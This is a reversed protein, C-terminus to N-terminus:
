QYYTYTSNTAFRHGADTGSTFLGDGTKTLPVNKDNYNYTYTITFDLTSGTRVVKGPNNKQLQVGPLLVLHDFFDNHILTFGDVNIKTDYQEYRDTVTGENQGNIAAVHQVVEQLNGDALYKFTMTKDVVFGLASRLERELKTLQQGTYSFSVRKRVIGGEDTYNVRIVRGQDDYSYQLRDFNGLSNNKMESIRGNEYVIEYIKLGSAFSAAVVKGAENYEFHYFPSPLNPIVIEKLLAVPVVPPDHPEETPPVVTTVKEKKCSFLMVAPLMLLVLLKFRM